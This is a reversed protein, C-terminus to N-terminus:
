TCPSCCCLPLPHSQCATTGASPSHPAVMRPDRSTGWHQGSVGRLKEQIRTDKFTLWENHLTINHHKTDRMIINIFFVTICIYIYYLYIYSANKTPINTPQRPSCPTWREWCATSLSVELNKPKAAPGGAAPHAWCDCETPETRVKGTNDAVLCLM